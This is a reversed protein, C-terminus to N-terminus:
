DGRSHSVGDNQGNLGAEVTVFVRDGDVAIAEVGEYGPINDLGKAKLDVRAPKLAKNM